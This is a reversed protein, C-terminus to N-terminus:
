LVKGQKWRATHIDDEPLIRFDTLDGCFEADEDPTENTEQNVSKQMIRMFAAFITRAEPKALTENFVVFLRELKPDVEAATQIYVRIKERLLNIDVNDPDSIDVGLLTMKQHPEPTTSTSTSSSVSVSSPSSTRATTSINSFQDFMHIEREILDMENEEYEEIDIENYDESYDDWDDYVNANRKPRNPVFPHKQRGPTKSKFKPRQDLYDTYETPVYGELFLDAKKLRIKYDDESVTM